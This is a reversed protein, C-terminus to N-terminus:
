VCEHGVAFCKLLPKDGIKFFLPHHEHLRRRVAEIEAKLVSLDHRRPSGDNCGANGGKGIIGRFQKAKWLSNEGM